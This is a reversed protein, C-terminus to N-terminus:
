QDLIGGRHSLTHALQRIHDKTIKKVEVPVRSLTQNHVHDVLTYDVNPKAGPTHPRSETATEVNLVSSMYWGEPAVVSPLTALLVMYCLNYSKMDCKQKGRCM